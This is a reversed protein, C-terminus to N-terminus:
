TMILKTEEDGSANWESFNLALSGGISSYTGIWLSNFCFTQYSRLPMRRRAATTQLVGGMDANLICTELNFTVNRGLIGFVYMTTENVQCEHSYKCHNVYLLYPPLAARCMTRLILLYMCYLYSYLAIFHYIPLTFKRGHQAPPKRLRQGTGHRYSM